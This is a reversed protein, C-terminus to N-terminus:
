ARRRDIERQANLRVVAQDTPLPEVEVWTVGRHIDSVSTQSLGFVKALERQSLLPKLGKIAAADGATLKTAHHGAGRRYVGNAVGDAGNEAQTGYRLNEVSNDAKVDNGHLVRAAEPRPGLFAAAVELHVKRNRGDVKFSAYGYRDTFTALVKGATIGIHGHPYRRSPAWTKSQDLSRVRGQDSVEYRGELGIVSKWVELM